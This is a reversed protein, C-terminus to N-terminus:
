IDPRNPKETGYIQKSWEVPQEDFLEAMVKKMIFGRITLLATITAPPTETAKEPHRIL